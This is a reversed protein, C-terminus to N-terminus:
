TWIISLQQINLPLLFFSFRIESGFFFGTWLHTGSFLLFNLAGNITPFICNARLCSLFPEFTMTYSREPKGMGPTESHWRNVIRSSLFLLHTEKNWAVCGQMWHISSCPSTIRAIMSTWPEPEPIKRKQFFAFLGRLIKLQSTM